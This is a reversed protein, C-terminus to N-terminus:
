RVGEKSLLVELYRDAAHDVAFMAGRARLWDRDPPTNLVSHIADALAVDDGVPV